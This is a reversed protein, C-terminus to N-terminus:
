RGTGSCGPEVSAVSAGHLRGLCAELANIATTLAAQMLADALLQSRGRSAQPWAAIEPGCTALFPHVTAAKDLVACLQASDLAVGAVLVQGPAYAPALERCVARPRAVAAAQRTLEALEALRRDPVRLQAALAPLDCRFGPEIVTVASM